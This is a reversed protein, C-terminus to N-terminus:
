ITFFNGANKPSDLPGTGRERTEMVQEQELASTYLGRDRKGHKLYGYFRTCIMFSKKAPIIRSRSENNKIGDVRFCMTGDTIM